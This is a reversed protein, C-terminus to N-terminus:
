WTWTVNYAAALEDLTARLNAWHTHTSPDLRHTLMFADIAQARRLVETAAGVAANDDDFNSEWADTAREFDHIHGNIQDEADTGNYSSRDLSADLSSRFTDAQAEIRKLLTKVRKDGVRNVVPDGTWTWSVNYALALADLDARVAAWDSQARATMPHRTMFRDIKAASQLVAQALGPAQDDDDFRGELRDTAEEFSKRLRDLRQGQRTNDLDTEDLASDASSRFADASRELRSLINRVDDDNVRTVVQATAPGALAVVLAMTALIGTVRVM